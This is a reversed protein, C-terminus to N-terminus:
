RQKDPLCIARHWPPAPSPASASGGGARTLAVFARKGGETVDNRPTILLFLSRRCCFYIKGEDTLPYIDFLVVVREGEKERDKDNM